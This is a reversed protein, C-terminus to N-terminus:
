NLLCFLQRVTEFDVFKYMKQVLDCRILGPCNQSVVLLSHSGKQMQSHALYTQRHLIWILQSLPHTVRTAKGYAEAQRPLEDPENSLEDPESSNPPLEDLKDVPKQM